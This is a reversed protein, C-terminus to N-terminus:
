VVMGSYQGQVARNFELAKQDRKSPKAGAQQAKGQMASLDTTPANHNCHEACM